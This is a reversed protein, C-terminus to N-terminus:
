ASFRFFTISRNCSYDQVILLESLWNVYADTWVERLDRSLFREIDRQRAQRRNNQVPFLLQVYLVALTTQLDFGRPSNDICSVHIFECARQLQEAILEPKSFLLRVGAETFLHLLANLTAEFSIVVDGDVTRTFVTDKHDKFLGDRLRAYAPHYKFLASRPIAGHVFSDSM